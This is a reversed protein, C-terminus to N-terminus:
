WNVTIHILCQSDCMVYFDFFLFLFSTLTYYLISDALAAVVSYCLSSPKVLIIKNGWLEPFHFDLILSDASNTESSVDRGPKFFAVQERHRLMTKGNQMHQSLNKTDRWRRILVGIRESLAGGKHCWKIKNVVMFARDEFTTVSSTLANLMHCLFETSPVVIWDM